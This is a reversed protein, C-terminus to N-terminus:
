GCHGAVHSEWLKPEQTTWSTPRRLLIIAMTPPRRGARASPFKKSEHFDATLLRPHFGPGQPGRGNGLPAAHVSFGHSVTAAIPAVKKAKPCVSRRRNSLM